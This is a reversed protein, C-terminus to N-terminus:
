EWWRVYKVLRIIHSWRRTRVFFLVVKLSILAQHRVCIGTYNAESLGVDRCFCCRRPRAKRLLVAM